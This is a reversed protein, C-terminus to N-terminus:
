EGDPNLLGRSLLNQKAEEPFVKLGCGVIGYLPHRYMKRKVTAFQPWAREPQKAKRGIAYAVLDALELGPLGAQKALIIPKGSIVRALNEKPVFGTGNELFREFERVFLADLKNGRSESVFFTVPTRYRRLYFLRELIFELSRDYPSRFPGYRTLYSPKHIVSAIVTYELDDLLQDLASLFDRRKEAGTLFGYDGLQSKIDYAHLVVWPHPLHNRKFESIRPCLENFYYDEEIVVACLVLVPNEQKPSRLNHDGSEDVFVLCSPKKPEPRRRPTFL